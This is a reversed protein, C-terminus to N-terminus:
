KVNATVPSSSFFISAEIGYHDSLDTIVDKHLGQFISVRRRISEILRSNRVLIYDILQKKGDTRKALQNDIEDFSVHINGEMMGNEANLADLMYNYNISDGIEINFDGCVIQPIDTSYYKKLLEQYIEECQQHRVEDPSDNQLHTGVLQFEKGHWEGQFMVAGKRAMADIGTRSSYEIEKIKTLPIKSIVWIGSSTRLSYMNQNAPGYMFPFSNELRNRIIRRARHDFAEEFVIVDYKSSVLSKAIEVARKSNGKFWSCHPLMYINWTLINLESSNKKSNTSSTSNESNLQYPLFICFTFILIAIRISLVIM